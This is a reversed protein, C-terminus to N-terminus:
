RITLKEEEDKVTAQCYPTTDTYKRRNEWFLQKFHGALIYQRLSAPSLPRNRPLPTMSRM